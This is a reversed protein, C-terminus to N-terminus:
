VVKGARHYLWERNNYSKVQVTTSGNGIIISPVVKGARHYLWNPALVNGFGPLTLEIEIWKDTAKEYAWLDGHYRCWTLLLVVMNFTIIVM